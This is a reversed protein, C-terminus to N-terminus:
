QSCGSRLHYRQQEEHFIHNVQYAFIISLSITSCVQAVMFSIFTTSLPISFLNTFLKIFTIIIIIIIIIITYYKILIVGKIIIISCFEPGFSKM